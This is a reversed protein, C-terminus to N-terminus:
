KSSKLVDLIEKEFAEYSRMGVIFKKRNGKKDFIITTPIAGQWQPNVFNILEDVSSFNNIYNKFNVKNKTLFPIVETELDNMEDVSLGIFEVSNKYKNALKVIDPFEMQCPVCWSAWINLFLIKGKRNKVISEMKSKNIKDVTISSLSQSIINSGFIFFILVIFIIKNKM